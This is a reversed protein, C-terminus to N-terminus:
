RRAYVTNSCSFADMECSIVRLSVRVVPRISFGTLAKKDRVVTPNKL